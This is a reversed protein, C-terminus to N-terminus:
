FAVRLEKLYRFVNKPHYEPRTTVLRLEPFRSLLTSVATTLELRALPAGICYHLGLGFAIHPNPDRTIDFRDPETFVDPDRNASAYFLCMVAGKEFKIGAYEMEELVYREFFQLPTDFRMMEEVASSCLSPDKRLRLMEQPHQLLALMGNGIVNVVAEHGANLFLICNAVVEGESLREPDADHVRVMRTILDDQPRSRKECMLQRIYAAFEAAASEARREMELTREPEFMGIIGKSWPLLNSRDDEPVGLLDAIVTVPLPEAFAKILDVERGAIQELRTALRTCLEEIRVALMRVHRPTFAQHVVARVRTHDPPEIELLSGKQIAEFAAHAPDTPPRDEPRLRHHIVRGLRRDRLLADVDHYRTVIWKDWGPYYFIPAQRRLRAYTPYPNALFVASSPDFVVEDM